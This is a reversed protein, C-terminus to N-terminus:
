PGDRGDRFGEFRPHRPAEDSGYPLYAVKVKLGKLEERKEWLGVREEQTFGTGVKWPIPWKPHFCILAGLMGAKVKGEQSSSRKAYGLNTRTQENENREFEVVGLVEAELDELPKVKFMYGEKVTSRGHKYPGNLSRLITGEFGEELDREIEMRLAAEDMVIRQSVQRLTIASTYNTFVEQLREVRTAFGAEEVRDFVFYHLDLTDPHEHSMVVSQTRTFVRPHDFPPLVLEGDLGMPLMGLIAELRRNPIAYGNRTHSGDQGVLARIGDLKSSALLPFNLKGWNKPLTEALMPRFYRM